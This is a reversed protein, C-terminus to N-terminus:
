LNPFKVKELQRGSEPIQDGLRKQPIRLKEQGFRWRKRYGRGWCKIQCTYEKLLILQM